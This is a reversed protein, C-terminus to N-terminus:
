HSLCGSSPCALQTVQFPLHLWRWSYQNSLIKGVSKRKLEQSLLSVAPYLPGHHGLTELPLITGKRRM